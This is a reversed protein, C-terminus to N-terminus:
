GSQRPAFYIGGMWPHTWRITSNRTTYSDLGRQFITGSRSCNLPKADPTRRPHPDASGERQKRRPTRKPSTAKESSGALLPWTRMASCRSPPPGPLGGLSCEIRDDFGVADPVFLGDLAQHLVTLCKEGEVVEGGLMPLWRRVVFGISLVNAVTRCLVTRDLPQREFLVASAMIKLSVCAASFRQCRRRPWWWNGFTIRPTFNLSPISITM